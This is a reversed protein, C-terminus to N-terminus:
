TPHCYPQFIWARNEPPIGGCCEIVSVVLQHNRSLASVTIAKGRPSYRSGNSLLIMLVQILLKQDVSVKSLGASIIRILLQQEREQFLPTVIEVAEQIMKDVDILAVALGVQHTKLRMYNSLDEAQKELAETGRSTSALM